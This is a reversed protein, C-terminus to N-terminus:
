FHDVLGPVASLPIPLTMDLDAAFQLVFQDSTAATAALTRAVETGLESMWQASLTPRSVYKDAYHWADLTQPYNSRLEGSVRSVPMRYEDGYCKYSFGLKDSATGDVYVEKNYIPVMGIRSFTPEYFDFKTRRSMLCDIGQQYSRRHRLFALGMILGHEQTSYIVKAGRGSTVSNGAVNGQPTGSGTESTQVVQAMNINFTQSGLFEPRNLRADQVTLGYFSSLIEAYRSGGLALREAYRQMAFAQRLQNVTFMDIGAPQAYLNTPILPNNTGTDQSTAPVHFIGQLNVYPVGAARTYSSGSVGSAFKMPQVSHGQASHETAMTTVPINVDPFVIGAATNMKQATPFSDSFYDHERDVHLLAGGGYPNSNALIDTDDDSWYTAPDTNQNRFFENWIYCYARFPFAECSVTDGSVGTPLGLHDAVGKAPFAFTNTGSKTLVHPVTYQTPQVWPYVNSNNEGNFEKWHKWLLRYPVFFYSITLSVDDMVPFLPTMMRCFFSTDFSYTSGPLCDLCMFPVLQGNSATTSHRWEKVFRSRQHAIDPVRTDSIYSNNTM